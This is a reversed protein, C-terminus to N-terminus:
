AALFFHPFPPTQQTPLWNHTGCDETQNSQHVFPKLENKSM